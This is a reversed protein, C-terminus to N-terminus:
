RSRKMEGFACFDVLCGEFGVRGGSYFGSREKWAVYCLCAGGSRWGCSRMARRSRGSRM